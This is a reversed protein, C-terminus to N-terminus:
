RCRLPGKDTGYDSNRKTARGGPANVGAQYGFKLAFHCGLQQKGAKKGLNMLGEAENRPEQVSGRVEIM